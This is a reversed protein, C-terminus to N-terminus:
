GFVPLGGADRKILDSGVFRALIQELGDTFIRASVVDQGRENKLNGAFRLRIPIVAIRVHDIENGVLVAVLGTM